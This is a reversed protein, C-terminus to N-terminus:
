KGVGTTAAQLKVLEVRRNNAKSEATNNTDIPKAEGWGKAELRGGDIKYIQMLYTRVSNARNQSLKLNYDDAGDSDTHGEISVRLDPNDILLQGIDALTKYSEAKIKDSGSDFLIGHTVIRGTADLQEKLTKGGEAFRFGRMLMQNGPEDTWPDMHVRFGVPAFGEVAPVNAIRENDIYCKISSKTAMIRMTHKGAALDVPLKKNSMEKGMITLKTWSNDTM